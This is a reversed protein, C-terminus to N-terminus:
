KLLTRFLRPTYRENSNHLTRQWYEAERVVYLLIQVWVNKESKYNWDLFCLFASFRLFEFHTIHKRKGKKFDSHTLISEQFEERSEDVALM